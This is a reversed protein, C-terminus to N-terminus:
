FNEFTNSTNFTGITDSGRKEMKERCLALDDERAPIPLRM